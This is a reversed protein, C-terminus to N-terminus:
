VLFLFNIDLHVHIDDLDGENWSSFLSSFFMSTNVCDSLFLNVDNKLLSPVHVKIGLGERHIHTHTRTHTNIM